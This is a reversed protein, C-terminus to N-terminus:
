TEDLIRIVNALKERQEVSLLPEAASLFSKMQGSNYTGNEKARNVTKILEAILQEDDMASYKGIADEDVGCKKLMEMADGKGHNRLSKM